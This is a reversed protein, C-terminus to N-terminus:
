EDLYYLTPKFKLANRPTQLFFARTVRENLLRYREAMKTVGLSMAKQGRKMVRTAQSSLNGWCDRVADEEKLGFL